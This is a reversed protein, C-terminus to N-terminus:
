AGCGTPGGRPRGFTALAVAVPREQVLRASLTAHSRGVRVTEVEAVVPGIAPREVYHVTMTLPQPPAAEAALARALIAAIYGGNPGGGIGWRGTVRGHWRGPGAPELATDEDLEYTM